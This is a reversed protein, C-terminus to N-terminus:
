FLTAECIMARKETRGAPRERFCFALGATERLIWDVKALGTRKDPTAEKVKVPSSSPM